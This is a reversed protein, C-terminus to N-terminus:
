KIRAVRLTPFGSAGGVPNYYGTFQVKWVASGRRVLYINFSPTLRHPNAEDIGYIFPPSDEASVSYAIPSSISSLFGGYGPANSATTLGDFSEGERLPFTGAQCGSGGNLTVGLGNDIALDWACGGATTAAGDALSIRTPNAEPGPTVTLSQVEGLQGAGSQLRYEIRFSTLGFGALGLEAVRLVAHGGTATRFKWAKAPNAVITQGSPTFWSNEDQVLTTSAFAGGAPIDSADVAEFEALRNAPTYGLITAPDEGSHDVAIAADVDAPGTYGGNLRIEYRRIGIDWATSSGADGVSIAALNELDIWVFDSNSTADITLEGTEGSPDPDPLTSESECATVTIATAVLALNAITRRIVKPEEANCHVRPETVATVTASRLM